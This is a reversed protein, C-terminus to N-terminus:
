RFPVHILRLQLVKRSAVRGGPATVIGCVDGGEERRVAREPDVVGTGGDTACRDRGSRLSEHGLQGVQHHAHVTQGGVLPARSVMPRQGAAVTAWAPAAPRHVDAAVLVPSEAVVPQDGLRLSVKIPRLIRPLEPLSLTAFCDGVPATRQHDQLGSGQSRVAGNVARRPGAVRLIAGIWRGVEGHNRGLPFRIRPLPPCVGPDRDDAKADGHARQQPAARPTGLPAM